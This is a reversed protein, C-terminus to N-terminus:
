APSEQRTWGQRLRLAAWEAPPLAALRDALERSPPVAMDGPETLAAAATLHGHRLRAAPPLGRLLASLYGAAFADGAGVPAVVDVQPAPEHVSGSAPLLTAGRADQKVVVAAPEPLAARIAAPGGTIGFAAEAEDEGVFVLDSGRALELLVTGGDARSEHRAWLAPRHNVDFSVLPRGPTRATLERLLRLCSDSLAATVGSLHLIRTDAWASHPPSGPAMAAAASGQRYHVAEARRGAAEADGTGGDTRFYLGTPRGPDRHVASVDVGTAAITRLLHDGFGDTGLRSVWRVPHGSAALSCAVNSEAGGVGRTFHPADALSQGAASPRLVFLSEGVCVVDPM